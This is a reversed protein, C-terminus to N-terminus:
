NKICPIAGYKGTVYNKQINEVKRVNKVESLSYLNTARTEKIIEAFWVQDRRLYKLNLLLTENSTFIIQARENTSNNNFLVLVQRAVLPHIHSEFEDAIMVRGNDIVDVAYCFFDIIKHIGSSALSFPIKMNGYDLILCKRLEILNKERSIDNKAIDNINMFDYNEIYKFKTDPLQYDIIGADITKLFSLLRKKISKDKLKILNSDKIEDYGDFHYSILDEEFFKYTELIYKIDCINNASPLILMNDSCWSRVHKFLSEYKQNCSFETKEKKFIKTERGNPYIYLYEELICTQNYTFGYNYRIGKREFQISLETPKDTQNIFPAFPFIKKEFYMYNYLVINKMAFIANIFNSKGSGNPGLVVAQKVYKKDDFSILEDEYSTDPSSCM